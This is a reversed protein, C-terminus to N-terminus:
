YNSLAPTLPLFPPHDSVPAARRRSPCSHALLPYHHHTCMALSDFTVIDCMLHYFLTYKMYTIKAVTKFFTYLNILSLLFLPLSPPLLFSLFSPPFLPLSPPLSLPLFSPLFADSRPSPCLWDSERPRLTHAWRKRRKMALIPINNACCVLWFCFLVFLLLFVCFGSQQSLQTESSGNHLILLDFLHDSRHTLPNNQRCLM